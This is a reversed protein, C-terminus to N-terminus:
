NIQYPNMKTGDGIINTLDANFTIVPYVSMPMVTTKSIYNSEEILYVGTDSGPSMTWWNNDKIFYNNTELNTGFAILGGLLSYEDASILAAKMSVIDEDRCSISPMVFGSQYQKTTPNNTTDWGDITLKNYIGYLTSQNYKSHLFRYMQSDEDITKASCYRNITIFNDYDDMDALYWENIYGEINSGSYEPNLSTNYQVNKYTDGSSNVKSSEFNLAEDKILKVTGDEQIRLIRWTDEGLRVYNNPNIGRFFYTYTGEEDTYRYLGDTEKTSDFGNPVETLSKVITNDKYIKSAFTNTVGTISYPDEITQEIVNNNGSLTSNELGVDKSFTVTGEENSNNYLAVTAKKTTTAALRFDGSQEPVISGEEELYNVTINENTTEYNLDAKVPVLSSNTIEIDIIDLEKSELTITKNNELDKSAINLSLSGAQMTLVRQKEEYVTFMAYSFYSLIVFLGIVAIAILYTNKPSITKHLYYHLKTTSIYDKFSQIPNNKEKQKLKKKM